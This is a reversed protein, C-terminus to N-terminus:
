VTPSPHLDHPPTLFCRCSALTLNEVVQHHPQEALFLLTRAVQDASLMARRDSTTQATESDWHPTNVSGHTLTSM